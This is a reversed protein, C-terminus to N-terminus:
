MKSVINVWLAKAENKVRNIMKDEKVNGTLEMQRKIWRYTISIGQHLDYMPRWDLVSYAIRNNSCRGMVGVPGPIHKKIISKGQVSSAIDVLRNITVMEESGINIPFKPAKHQELSMLERTAEICDDIYLFSRTQSGDGWIEVEGKSEIVKRCIAAPSKERGGRWTGLPGYVNHYRAVRVDVGYNRKYAAYLRESFIKEWGYESDPDAPYASDESCNPNNPDEQNRGPYICASSSYFVRTPFNNKRSLHGLLNINILASNHMINADNEGTFVFGAGGMDAAFQYIEDFPKGDKSVLMSPFYSDDRLDHIVFHDARTPEFESVKLDVGRVWYGESKLRNVMHHGIFGGAGMVLATKM